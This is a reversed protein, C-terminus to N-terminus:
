SMNSLVHELETVISPLGVDIAINFQYRSWSTRQSNRTFQSFLSRHYPPNNKNFTNLALPQGNENKTDDRFGSFRDIQTLLWEDLRINVARILFVLTGGGSKSEDTQSESESGTDSDENQNQDM